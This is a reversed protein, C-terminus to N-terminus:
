RHSAAVVVAAVAKVQAPSVSRVTPRTQSRRVHLLRARVHAHIQATVVGVRHHALPPHRRVAAANKPHLPAVTKPPREAAPATPSATEDPHDHAVGTLLLVHVPDAAKTVVSTKAKATRATTQTEPHLDPDTTAVDALSAPRLALHPYAPPTAAAAVPLLPLAAARAITPPLAAAAPLTTETHADQSTATLEAAQLLAETDTTASEQLPLGRIATAAEETMSVALTEDVEDETEVNKTKETEKVEEVSM